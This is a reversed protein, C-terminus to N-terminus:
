DLSIDLSFDRTKGAPHLGLSCAVCHPADALYIGSIGRLTLFSTM